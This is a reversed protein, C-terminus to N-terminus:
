DRELVDRIHDRVAEIEAVPDSAGHHDLALVQEYGVSVIADVCQELNIPPGDSGPAAGAEAAEGKGSSKKKTKSTKKKTTKKKSKTTTAAKEDDSGEADSASDSRLATSVTDHGCTALIAGAYPATQRLASVADDAAWANGFNPLTGIRFGGVKKILDILADADALRADTPEVLLHLEMRDIREMVRRLLSAAADFKEDTDIGAFGVSVANCGLRHAARSVIDLRSYSKELADRRTPSITVPASERLVLCPCGAQDARIRLTDLRDLSWERLLSTDVVLGRLGLREFVFRPLDEMELHDRGSSKLRRELSRATLTLLM